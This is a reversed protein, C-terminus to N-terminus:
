NSKLKVGVFGSLPNANTKHIRKKYCMRSDTHHNIWDLMGLYTISELGTENCYALYMDYLESSYVTDQSNGTIEIYDNWFYYFSATSLEAKRWSRKVEESKECYSFRYGNKIVTNLHRLCLSVIDDKEELLDDLLNVDIESPPVSRMFPIVIMREWFSDEDDDRPLTVPYNTGFLFRLSSITSESRQYKQEIVISDNGSISKIRSVASASLKGNPIDMALNLMKGRTGGLAFRDSLNNPTIATVFDKGILAELLSALTSKGSNGATGIVFFKKPNLSSLLCGVVELTLTVIEQDGMAAANLFSLFRKPNPNEKWNAKVAHFTLHKPHFDKLELKKANLVGNNLVVYNKSKRLREEYDYPVLLPNTKLFMYLDQFIRVSRSNFANQSIGQRRILELVEMDNTLAVYTRGNYYYIGGDHRILTIKALIANELQQLSMQEEKVKSFDASPINNSLNQTSKEAPEVHGTPNTLSSKRAETSVYLERFIDEERDVEDYETESKWVDAKSSARSILLDDEYVDEWSNLNSFSSSFRTFLLKPEDSSAVAEESMEQSEAIFSDWYREVADSRFRKKGM